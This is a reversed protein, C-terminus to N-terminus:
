YLIDTRSKKTLQPSKFKNLLLFTSSQEFCQKIHVNCSFTSTTGGPSQRDKWRGASSGAALPPRPLVQIHVRAGRMDWWHRQRRGEAPGCSSWQGALAGTHVCNQFLGRPSNWFNLTPTVLSLTGPRPSTLQPGLRRGERRM